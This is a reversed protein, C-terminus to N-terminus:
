HFSAIGLERQEKHAETSLGSPSQHWDWLHHRLFVLKDTLDRTCLAIPFLPVAATVPDQLLKLNLLLAPSSAWSHTGLYIQGLTLM